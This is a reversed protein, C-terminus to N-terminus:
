LERIIRGILGGSHTQVHPCKFRPSITPALKQQFARLSLVDFKPLFSLAETYISENRNSYSNSTSALLDLGQFPCSELM